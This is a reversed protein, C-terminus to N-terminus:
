FSKIKEIKKAFILYGTHGVMIDKPRLRHANIKFERMIIETVESIFFNSKELSELVQSVQNTTPVIIGLNGSPKLAKRVPELVEWPERVDLFFADLDREEIGEELPKNHILVNDFETCKSLNKQSLEVFERRQEYSYVMGEKGVARSLYATLAGSGTGAEGIRKGPSVDLRVLIYAAEKPYVIQTRRTLKYMIYDYLDCALAYYPKNNVEFCQGPKIEKLEEGQIEGNPLQVKQASNIDIVKRFKNGDTIVIKGQLGEPM